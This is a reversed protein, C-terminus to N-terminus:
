VLVGGLQRIVEETQQELHTLGGDNVITFASMALLASINTETEARGGNERNHAARFEEFTMVDRSGDARAALRHYRLELDETDGSVVGILAGGYKQILHVGECPAYLGSIAVDADPDTRQVSIDVWYGPDHVRRMENAIETQLPRSPTLGRQAIEERVLDSSSIHTYGNRAFINAVYDKGSAAGGVIGVKNPAQEPNRAM